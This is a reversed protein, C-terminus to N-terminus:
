KKPKPAGVFVETNAHRDHADKVQTRKRKRNPRAERFDAENIPRELKRIESRAKHPQPKTALMRRLIDDKRKQTDDM